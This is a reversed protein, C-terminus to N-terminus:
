PNEQIYTDLWDTMLPGIDLGTAELAAKVFVGRDIREFAHEQLLRSLFADFGGDMWEDLAYLFATARGDMVARFTALDPFGDAPTGPTVAAHLDERMPLDVWLTRLNAEADPGKTECVYRLVAWQRSACNFWSAKANDMTIAWGLWQGALWYAARHELEDEALSDDILMLGPASYGSDTLSLSVVTLEDLPLKGYHRTYIPWVRRLVAALSEARARTEAIVSVPLGEVRISVTNWSAPVILFALQNTGKGTGTILRYREPLDAEVAVDSIDMEQPAAYPMAAATDWEGGVRAAMVPLAHMFRAAEGNVGFLSACKPLNLRYRLRIAATEGPGVSADIWILNPQEGDFAADTLSDNVWCGELAATVAEFGTPYARDALDGVAAPSTSESAYAAADMRMCLRGIALDESNTWRLDETVALTRESASYRVSLRYQPRATDPLALTEANGTRRNLLRWAGFLVGAVVAAAVILVATIRLIGESRPPLDLHRFLHM